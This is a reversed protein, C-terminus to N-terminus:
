YRGSGQLWAIRDEYTAVLCAVTACRNRDAIWLRQNERLRTRESASIRRQFAGYEHAMERDLQSLYADGCILHEVRTGARRCNFSPENQKTLQREGGTQGAWAPAALAAAMVGILVMARRM